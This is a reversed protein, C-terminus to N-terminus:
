KLVILAGRRPVAILEVYNYNLSATDFYVRLQRSGSALSVPGAEVDHFVQWGGVNTFSAAVAPVGDVQASLTKVGPTDSAVRFVFRYDGPRTVDLNYTLWEGVAIWGVNYGNGNDSCRELDVRDNRYLHGSNGSSTDHYAAGEVGAAYDEAEVRGPVPILVWPAVATNTYMVRVTASTAYGSLYGYAQVLGGALMFPGNYTAYSGATEGPTTGDSTYRIAAGPTACSLTVEVLGTVLGGPPSFEPAAVRTFVTYVASTEPSDSLGEKWAFARVTANTTLTFPGAYAPGERTPAAGNTTFGIVAGETACALTVEVSGEYAGPVPSFTPRAATITFDASTVESDTMGEKWAIVKLTAGATLTFANTYLISGPTPAAGNTTYSLSAGETFSTLTVAVSEVFSGGAPAILPPAVQSAGTIIFTAGTVASDPMDAKGAIAKVTADATLTFPGSYLVGNTTPDVGNTTYCIFSGETACALTVEVSDIHAGGAPSITPTAVPTKQLSCDDVYLIATSSEMNVFFNAETLSGAWTLDITGSVQTWGTNSVAVSGSLTPYTTGGADKLGIQIRGTDTGSALKLWASVTYNGPKAANLLSFLNQHQPGDTSPNRNYARGCAAGSHRQVTERALSCGNGIWPTLTGNEFGANSLLEGGRALGAMGILLAALWFMRNM